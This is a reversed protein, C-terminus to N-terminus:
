YQAIQHLQLAARPQISSDGTATMPECGESSIGKTIQLHVVCFSSYNRVRNLAMHVFRKLAQNNAWADCEPHGPTVSRPTLFSEAGTLTSWISGMFAVCALTCVALIIKFAMAPKKSCQVRSHQQQDTTSAQSHGDQM